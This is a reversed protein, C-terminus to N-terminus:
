RGEPAPGNAVKEFVFSIAACIAMSSIL